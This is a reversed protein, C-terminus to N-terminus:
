MASFLASVAVGLVLLAALALALIRTINKKAKEKKEALTKPDVAPRKYSKKNSAM